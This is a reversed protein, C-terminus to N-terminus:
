NENNKKEFCEWIHEVLNTRLQRHKEIDHVKVRRQLYTSIFSSHAGSSVKNTLMDKGENDYDIYNQYM